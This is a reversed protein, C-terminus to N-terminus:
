RDIELTYLKYSYLENGFITAPAPAPTLHFINMTPVIKKEMEMEM